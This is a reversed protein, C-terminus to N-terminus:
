AAPHRPTNHQPAECKPDAGVHPPYRRRHLRSPCSVAAPLRPSPTL